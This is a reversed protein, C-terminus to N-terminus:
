DNSEGGGFIDDLESRFKETERDIAADSISKYHEGITMKHSGDAQVALHIMGKAHDPDIAFMTDHIAGQIANHDPEAHDGSFMRIKGDKDRMRVLAAIVTMGRDDVTAGNKVGIDDDGEPKAWLKRFEVSSATDWISHDEGLIEKMGPTLDIGEIRDANIIRWLFDIFKPEGPVQDPAHKLMEVSSTIFGHVFDKFDDEDLVM